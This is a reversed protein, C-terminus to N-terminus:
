KIDIIGKAHNITGLNANVIIKEANSGITYLRVNIGYDDIYYVTNTDSGVFFGTSNLSGGDASYKIPNIMNVLYEASVNYRPQLVRHLMVTTINNVISQETNDILRSLKSFRFVGDFTQLDSNNYDNITSTVLTGIDAAARTTNRENYYVGVNLAIYIYDPDVLEPVVSVVNKNSLITSIIESKQTSTLTNADSPKVCIFVKGYVPPVNDEGGWVSVAQAQPVQARILAKYDDATVARNQTAYLKPANFRISEIDEPAGGGYAPTLCTVSTGANNLIARGAYNFLRAGNPAGFNCVFYDLHVLNGPKLATGVVGDGFTVEYKGDDIQKLFYVNTNPDVATISTSATFTTYVSSTASDQVRVTLTTIDANANPIVFPVGDDVSYSYSLPSGEQITINNFNYVNGAGNVTVFEGSRAEAVFRTIEEWDSIEYVPPIYM